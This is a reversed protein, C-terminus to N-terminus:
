EHGAGGPHRRMRESDVVQGPGDRPHSEAEAGAHQESIDRDDLLVEREHGDADYENRYQRHDELIERMPPCLFPLLGLLSLGLLSSRLVRLKLWGNCISM